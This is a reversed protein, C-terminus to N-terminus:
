DAEAPRVEVPLRLLSPDSGSVDLWVAHGDHEDFYELLQQRSVAAEAALEQGDRCTRCGLSAGRSGSPQGAATM